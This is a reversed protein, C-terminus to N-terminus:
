PWGEQGGTTVLERFIIVLFFASMSGVFRWWFAAYILISQPRYDAPRVLHGLRV